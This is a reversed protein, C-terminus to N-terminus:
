FEYDFDFVVWIGCIFVEVKYDCVLDVLLGFFGIVSVNDLYVLINNVFEVCEDFM